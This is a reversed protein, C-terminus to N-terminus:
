AAEALTAELERVDLVWGHRCNFGGGTIMVNPLQGNDMRDIQERTYAKDVSTLHRCFPRELKDQPGSYRFRLPAPQEDQIAQFARDAATRYFTSMGTDALTRAQAIGTEFKETLTEVLSGFKLGGVSFLGRTMAQGATVEMATQLGSVNNAQLSALIDTDRASFVLPDDLRPLPTQMQDGLYQFVEQLYPLQGQYEGVFSELLAQFGEKNMERLFVNNLNRLARLNGSTQDIVGDTIALQRQLQGMVRGQVRLVMKRLEQEFAHLM